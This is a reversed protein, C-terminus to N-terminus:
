QCLAGVPWTSSRAELGSVTRLRLDRRLCATQQRTRASVRGKYMRYIAVSACVGVILGPLYKWPAAEAGERSILRVKSALAAVNVYFGFGFARPVFIRSEAPNWIRERSHHTFLESFDFHLEPNHATKELATQAYAEAVERASGFSSLDTGGNMQNTVDSIVTDRQGATFGLNDLQTSLESLFLEHDLADPM